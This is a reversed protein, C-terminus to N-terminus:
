KIIIKHTKDNASVIYIGKPLNIVKGGSITKNVLIQGNISLFM